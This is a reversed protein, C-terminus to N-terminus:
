IIENSEESQGLKFLAEMADPDTNITKLIRLVIDRAGENYATEYPDPHFCSADVRGARILDKLVDKGDETDFLRKYRIILDRKVKFANNKKDFFM